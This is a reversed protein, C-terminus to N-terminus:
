GAGNIDNPDRDLSPPAPAPYQQCYQGRGCVRCFREWRLIGYGDVCRTPETWDRHKRECLSTKYFFLALIAGVLLVAIAVDM